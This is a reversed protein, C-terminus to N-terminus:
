SRHGRRELAPGCLKLLHLTRLEEMLEAETPTELSHAVEDLLLDAFKERARHLTVRVNAATFPRGLQASLREAQQASPEDPHHVHYELVARFTPQVEALADWTRELLEERWSQLFAADAPELIGGDPLPLNGPLPQPRASLAKHYDAVLHRLATKVYDRFRGREPDARRFDGRLFRLAFEQFLEKAADENRVVGLLYQYVAGMYRQMLQKQATTAADKAGAHAQQVLTWLTSIRSLRLNGSEPNM